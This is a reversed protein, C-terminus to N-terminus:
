SGTGDPSTRTSENARSGPTRVSPPCSPRARRRTTSWPSCAARPSCARRGTRSPGRSGCGPRPGAPSRRRRTLAPGAAVGALAVLAGGEGGGRARARARAGSGAGSDWVVGAAHRAAVDAVVTEGLRETEPRPIFVGPGVALDLGHFHAVGTLHQVPERAARRGILTEFAAAQAPEAVAGAFVRALLAGRDLGLVHALLLEADVRPSDIGAATLRAAADRLLASWAPASM